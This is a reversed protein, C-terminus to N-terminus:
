RPQTVRKKCESKRGVSFSDGGLELASSSHTPQHGTELAEKPIPPLSRISLSVFDFHILALDGFALLATCPEDDYVTVGVLLEARISAPRFVPLLVSALDTPFGVSLEDAWHTPLLRLDISLWTLLIARELAIQLHSVSPFCM